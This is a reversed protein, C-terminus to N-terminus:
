NFSSDFFLTNRHKYERFISRQYTRFAIQKSVSFRHVGWTFFLNRRNSLLYNLLLKLMINSPLEKQNAKQSVKQHLLQLIHHLQHKLSKSLFPCNCFVLVFWFERQLMIDEDTIQNINNSIISEIEALISQYYPSYYRSYILFVALLLPNNDAKIKKWVDNEIAFPMTISYEHFLLLLNCLDNINGRKMIFMYKLFLSKLKAHNPDDALFTLESDFYVVMSIIRQVHDFCPCFSLIYLALDLLYFARNESGRKFLRIGNKKKSINNLLTTPMFSVITRKQQPFSCVLSNFDDKLKAIPLYGDRVLHKNDSSLSIFEERSYFLHSIKDALVRTESLWQNLTFPTTTRIMKLENPRLLYTQSIGTIRQIITDIDEKSNAFIFIDDVYRYINYDKNVKLGDLRLSSEVEVDIQQLLIEVIMRSFEPGVIVGNSSKANINQLVRDIVTYLNSNKVSKSDVVNKQIIWKYSHTYISDFCSKYDMRAFHSYKFNLNQWRSSGTFSSVSNYRYIRFYAGTQQLVTKDIAKATSQYYETIRKVRKKYYLNCNKKHYRLSFVSNRELLILIEKQYCELFLFINLMSLPQMLSMERWSDSGKLINYKLPVTSWGHEFPIKNNKEISDRILRIANDIDKRHEQLYEYFGNVSFLETLEVPLLDTLIYDLRDREINYSKM